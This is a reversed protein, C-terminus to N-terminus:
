MATSSGLSQQLSIREQVHRQHRSFDVANQRLDRSFDMIQQNELTLYM